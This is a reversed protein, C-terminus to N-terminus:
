SWPTPLESLDVTAAEYWRRTAKVDRQIQDMLDASTPFAREARVRLFFYLRVREGYVNAEFDLVHSEITVMHQSSVTPRTGINTVSPLMRRQSPIWVATVYVGRGPFLENETALNLTPFGFSRGLRRGEVVVGDIFVPRGLLTHAEDVAGHEVAARVRTSSVVGGAAHVVPAGAAVFGLRRGESILLEVDGKRDAGFRFNAGIYVERVALRHVLVEAVFAEAEMRALERTFPVVLAVDVGEREVLELRQELTTLLPPAVDPRLVRVPHPDFTMVAAVTDLSRAREVLHRLVARHGLHVGDFNGVSLVSGRPPHDAGLPDYLIQL